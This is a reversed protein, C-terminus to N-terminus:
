LYRSTHRGKTLKVFTSSRRASKSTERCTSNRTSLHLEFGCNFKKGWEGSRRVNSDRRRLAKLLKSSPDLGDVSFCILENKAWNNAKIESTLVLSLVDLEEESKLMYTKDSSAGNLASYFLLVCLCPVFALRRLSAFRMEGNEELSAITNPLAM